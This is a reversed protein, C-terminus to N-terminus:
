QKAQLVIEEVDAGAAGDGVDLEVFGETAAPRGAGSVMEWWRDWDIVDGSEDASRAAMTALPAERGTRLHINM